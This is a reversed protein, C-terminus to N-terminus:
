YKIEDREDFCKYRYACYKCNYEGYNRPFIENEAALVIKGAVEELYKYDKRSRELKYLKGGYLYGFYVNEPYEGYMEKYAMGYLTFQYDARLMRLDPEKVKTKWDYVNKGRIQDIKGSFEIGKINVKFFQETAVIPPEHKNVWNYYYDLMQNNQKVMSSFSTRDEFVPNTENVIEAFRVYCAHKADEADIITPNEITEHVATGRAFNANAKQPVGEIRYGLKAPCSIWDKIATASLYSLQM